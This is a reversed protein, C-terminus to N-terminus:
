EEDEDTRPVPVYEFNKIDVRGTIEALEEELSRLRPAPGPEDISRCVCGRAPRHPCPTFLPHRKRQCSPRM